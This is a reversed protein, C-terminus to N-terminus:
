PYLQTHKESTKSRNTYLRTSNGFKRAPGPDLDQANQGASPVRSGSSTRSRPTRLHHHLKTITLPECCDVCASQLLNENCRNHQQSQIGSKHSQMSITHKPKLMCGKSPGLFSLMLYEMLSLELLKSLNHKSRERASSM